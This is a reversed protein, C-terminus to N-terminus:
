HPTTPANPNTPGTTNNIPANTQPGTGPAPTAAGSPNVPVQPPQGIPQGIVDGSVVIEVRRNQKRGQATDNSAVPNNEGLGQATIDGPKVGQSVLFDRVSNARKESLRQNYEPTGTSDTNGEVQLHLGPYAQVIGAFKALALQANPRLQYSNVAFLVDSLNAILGRATDRTSLITNFQQLLRQRLQEKEAQAQQAAQQAAQQQQLAQQRAAEAQERAQAAQQAQLEAQQRALAAQQAQQEAQQQQQEAQQRALSDQESRRRAEEEQQQAQQAQQEAQRQREASAARENALAEDQKRRLTLLLADEAQQTANRSVTSIPKSEVHKRAAYQQAQTLLDVARQYANPAYHEAGNAAAIRVANQAEYIDFPLKQDIILPQYSAQPPIYGGRGILEYHVNIPQTQGVTDKRIINEAVVLDSPQTVAYYPEATVILGFSQLDTTFTQTNTNGNKDHIVEGLNQARGEPTIAWLVYTLYEKGFQQADGLDNLKTEVRIRGLESKVHAQGHVKPMLDTGQLDVRTEGSAHHWNVASINRSVVNIKFTTMPPAQQDTGNQQADQTPTPATSAPPYQSSANPDTTSGNTQAAASLALALVSAVLITAKM